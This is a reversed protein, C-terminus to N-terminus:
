HFITEHEFFIHVHTVRISTCKTAYPGIDISGNVVKLM